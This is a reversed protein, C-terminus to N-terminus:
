CRLLILGDVGGSFVLAGKGVTHFGKGALGKEEPVLCRRHRAMVIALNTLQVKFIISGIMQVFHLTFRVDGTGDATLIELAFATEFTM